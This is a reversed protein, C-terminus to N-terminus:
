FTGGILALKVVFLGVANHGGVVDFDDVLVVGVGLVTAVDVLVLASTFAEVEGGVELFAGDLTVGVADRSVLTGGAGLDVGDGGELSGALEPLSRGVDDAGVFDLSDTVAAGLFEGDVRGEDERGLGAGINGGGAVGVDESGEGIEFFAAGDSVGLEDAPEVLLAAGFVVGGVLVEFALLEGVIALLRSVQVGHGDVAGGVTYHGVVVLSEARKVAM